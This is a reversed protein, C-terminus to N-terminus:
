QSTHYSEFCGFVCLPVNCAKCFSSTRKKCVSCSRRQHENRTTGPLLDYQGPFHWTNPLARTPAPPTHAALLERVLTQRFNRHSISRHAKHLIYANLVSANLLKRFFKKYWIKNRRREIPYMALMQDKRDVGGMCVNYDPIVTPKHTDGCMATALGHYTSVFAVRNKDRYVILDVDGSTCGNVQGIAMDKKTLNTLEIPVFQRNTRLTGVCDFGRVKLERALAPSNYFNDMWITHGKHELGNLLRLVLAPVKGSVPSDEQPDSSTDHGAHVEFRWLYGTQSECVEYTKIGVTAAKNRIFQNIDLWGKWMTLSEDVSVNQGLVYLQQFKNNLHDLIPQVKFLKAQARTMLEPDCGDNDQFHLCKSLLMFRDYTMAATFGPTSFIDLTSNWYEELRSKVVIGTALIIAFYVHLESVDTDKWKTIRSSPCLSGDVLMVTALQQAYRNTEMAIHEMIDRDWIATFADYPSAYPVTPGCNIQSFPERRLEPPTQPQPFGRWKFDFKNGPESMPCSPSSPTHTPLSPPVSYDPVHSTSPIPGSSNPVPPHDNSTPPWSFSIFADVEGGEGEDESAAFMQVVRPVITSQLGIEEEGDEESDEDSGYNLANSIEIDRLPRSSSSSSTILAPSPVSCLEM